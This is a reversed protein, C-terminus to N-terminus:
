AHRVEEPDATTRRGPLLSLAAIILYVGTVAGYAGVLGVTVVAGAPILVALALLLTAAGVVLRDRSAPGSDPRRLALALELAGIVAASAAILPVLSFVAAGPALLLLALGFVGAVIGAVGSALSLTRGVSTPASRPAAIAVVVGTLLAFGSYVALGFVPTHDASFTIVLALAAALVGRVLLVIADGRRGGDSERTV